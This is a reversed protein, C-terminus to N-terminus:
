DVTAIASGALIIRKRGVQALQAFCHRHESNSLGAFYLSMRQLQPTAGPKLGAPAARFPPEVLDHKEKVDNFSYAITIVHIPLCEALPNSWPISLAFVPRFHSCFPLMKQRVFGLVLQFFLGPDFVLCFSGWFSALFDNFVFFPALFRVWSVFGRIHQFSLTSKLFSGLVFARGEQGSWRGRVGDVGWPRRQGVGREINFQNASDGTMSNGTQRVVAAVSERGDFEPRRGARM